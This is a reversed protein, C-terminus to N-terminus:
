PSSVMKTRGFGASFTLTSNQTKKNLKYGVESEIGRGVGMYPNVKFQFCNKETCISKCDFKTYLM